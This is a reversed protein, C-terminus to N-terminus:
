KNKRGKIVKLVALLQKTTLTEWKYQKLFGMANLRAAYAEKDELEILTKEFQNM